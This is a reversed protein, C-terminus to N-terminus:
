PNPRPSSTGDRYVVVPAPPPFYSISKFDNIHRSSEPFVNEIAIETNRKWKTFEDSGYASSRIKEIGDISKQLLEKAKAKGIRAVM